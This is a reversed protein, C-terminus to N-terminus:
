SDNLEQEEFLSWSRFHIEAFLRNKPNPESLDTKLVFYPKFWEAILDKDVFIKIGGGFDDVLDIKFESLIKRLNIKHEVTWEEDVDEEPFCNDLPIDMSQLISRIFIIREEEEIKRIDERNSLVLKEM